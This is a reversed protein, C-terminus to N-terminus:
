IQGVMEVVSFFEILEKLVKERPKISSVKWWFEGRSKNGPKYAYFEPLLLVVAHQSKYREEPLGENMVTQFVECLGMEGKNREYMEKAKICLELKQERTLEEM